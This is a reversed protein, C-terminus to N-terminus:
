ALGRRKMEKMVHGLERGMEGTVSSNEQARRILYPIVVEVPGYPVYKAVNFGADALNFTLFDSMGFLQSFNLHPHKRDIGMESILEAQYQTSYVNHTACCSAMTEWNEVCYKIGLNFDRDTDEKTEHIPSPYGNERAREREKEMYAGRVLKAGLIYGKELAIKHDRYIEELKDHRYLQYTQFVTAKSKNYKEMMEYVLNDITIQIWSEEADIFVGVGLEFARGCINDIRTKLAEFDREEGSSLAVNSQVKAMLANDALASVKVSVVPVSENAAAMEIARVLEESVSNLDEESSKGEAAFDLITLTNFRYLHDIAEQSDMLNEGGCFQKFITKRIITKVFPFNLKVGWLGLVSGYEVLMANKMMKFLWATKKLEKDSKNDFAIESNNFDVVTKPGPDNTVKNKISEM